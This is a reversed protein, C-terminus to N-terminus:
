AAGRERERVLENSQHYRRSRWLLTNGEDNPNLTITCINGVLISHSYGDMRREIVCDLSVLAGELLPAGGDRQSWNSGDFRSLGLSGDIGAFRDAVWAQDPGLVNVGFYGNAIISDHASANSNVCAVISPPDASLSCVATATLGCRGSGKGTTIVTVVGALRAMAEKFLQEM